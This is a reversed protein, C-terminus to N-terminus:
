KWDKAILVGIDKGKLMQEYNMLKFKKNNLSTFDPSLIMNLETQRHISTLPKGDKGNMTSSNM